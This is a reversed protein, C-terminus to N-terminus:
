PCAVVQGSLSGGQSFTGTGDIFSVPPNGETVQEYYPPQNDCLVFVGGLPFNQVLYPVPVLSGGPANAGWCWVSRDVSKVACVQGGQSGVSIEVQAAGAFAVGADVGAQVQVPVSSTGTNLGNGLWGNGNTGWCSVTGDTTAACTASNHVTVNVVTNFLSTVQTPYFYTAQNTGVGIQGSGNNGWCWLSGDTKRACVHDTAVAMTDVGTFQPGGSQTLVRTAVMSSATGGNGLAGSSGDGWCWAGGGTDVACALDGQAADVFVKAINTIAPGGVSTVVQSPLASPTATGNGLQGYTASTSWCWLSGDTEVGCSLNYNEFPDEFSSFSTAVFPAGGLLTVATAPSSSANWLSGDSRQVMQSSCALLCSCNQGACQLPSNCSSQADAMSAPCCAQGVGGCACTGSICSVSNACATGGCCPQGPGGCACSGGSCTLNAGCTSGCCPAGVAQGCATCTGSECQHFAGCAPNCVVPADTSADGSDGVSATVDASNGADGSTMSTTMEDGSMTADGSPATGDPVSADIIPEIVPASAHGPAASATIRDGTVESPVACYDVGNADKACVRGSVGLVNCDTSSFCLNRCRYDSACALPSPCDSQQNCPANAEAAYQCVAVDGNDICTGGAGCDAATACQARCAGLACLLGRACDSNQRCAEEAALGAAVNSSTSCAPACLAVASALAFLLSALHRRPPRSSTTTTQNPM